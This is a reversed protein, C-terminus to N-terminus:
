PLVKWGSPIYVRSPLSFASWGSLKVMVERGRGDGLITGLKELVEDWFPGGVVRAMSLHYDTRGFKCAISDPELELRVPTFPDWAEAGASVQEMFPGFIVQPPHFPFANAAEHVWWVKCRPARLRSLLCAVQPSQRSYIVFSQLNPLFVLKEVDPKRLTFTIPDLLIRDLRPCGMLLASLDEVSTTTLSLKLSEINPFNQTSLDAVVGNLSLEQLRPAHGAFLAGRIAIETVCALEARHLSPAPRHLLPSVFQLQTDNLTLQLSRVRHMQPLMLEVVRDLNNTTQWCVVLLPWIGEARALITKVVGEGRSLDVLSWFRPSSIIAENWRRCVMRMNYLERYYIAPRRQANQDPTNGVDLQVVIGLIRHLTEPPLQHTAGFSSEAPVVVNQSPSPPSAKAVPQPRRNPM